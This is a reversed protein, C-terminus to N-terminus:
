SFFNVKGGKKYLYLYSIVLSFLLLYILGDWANTMYMVSLLFSFFLLEYFGIFKRKLISFLYAISLLVVPIDLVHGHLDSVVFSYIPFEHITYPIFRTANPYWYDNPFNFPLFNLTWFPVPSDQPLYPKFFAYITTLNGALSVLFSSLFGAIIPKISRKGFELFNLGISFSTTFTLAFLTALMLNYSINSPINSIKTYVATILHGFYYYNIPYPTYWMDKPPFYDARLISNLFGFDMFKELGNIDPMYGRVFSWITLTGLFLVEEILFIKKNQRIESLINIKKYKAFSYNIFALIILILYISLTSFKFIHLLGAVFIVYSLIISGIIKSFIYGSDKFSSFLYITLPFFTVSVTFFTLFWKLIYLFDGNIMYM